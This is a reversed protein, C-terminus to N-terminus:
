FDLSMSNNSSSKGRHNSACGMGPQLATKSGGDQQSGQQQQKQTQRGAGSRVGSGVSSGGASFDEPPLHLMRVHLKRRDRKMGFRNAPPRRNTTSDSFHSLSQLAMKRISFIGALDSFESPPPTVVADFGQCTFVADCTRRLSVLSQFSSPRSIINDTVPSCIWPRVSVLIVVPLSNARINSLLLPLAVSTTKVPANMLLMRVVSNPNRKLTVRINEICKRYLQVGCQRGARCCLTPCQQCSCNVISTKSNEGIWDNSYQDQMKKSLDYSHCYIKAGAKARSQYSSSPQTPTALRERQVSVKYQWANLLGEDAKDSSQEGSIQDDQDGEADDFDDENEDEIVDLVGLPISSSVKLLSSSSKKQKSLTEDNETVTTTTKKVAEQKSKAKDLHLNRPLIDLFEHLGSSNMGQQQINFKNGVNIDMYSDSIISISDDIDAATAILSLNQEQSVAEASWYRILGLALDQTWRDEEILIATGLPQGGGIISDLDRLGTSTLTIGGIWPKTGIRELVTQFSKTKTTALSENSKDHITKSSPIPNPFSENQINQRPRTAARRFSSSM